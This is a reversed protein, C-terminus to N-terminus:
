HNEKSEKMIKNEVAEPKAERQSRPRLGGNHEQAYKIDKNIEGKDTAHVIEHGAVKRELRM